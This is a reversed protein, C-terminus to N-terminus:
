AYGNIQLYSFEGSAFDYIVNWFCSGGDSVVVLKQKWYSLSSEACFANIYIFKHKGVMIGVYQRYFGEPHDMRKDKIGSQSALQTIRSLRSEMTQVDAEVPMWTGDFHKFTPYSLYRVLEKAVSEPLVVSQKNTQPISTAVLGLLCVGGVIIIRILANRM